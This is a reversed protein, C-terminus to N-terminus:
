TPSSVSLVFRELVAYRVRWGEGEPALIGARQLRHALLYDAVGTGPSAAVAGVLQLAERNEQLARWQQRLWHGFPGDVAQAEALVAAPGGPQLSRYLAQRVLGPHGGVLARLEGLQPETWGAQHKEALEAVSGEPLDELYIPPVLQM